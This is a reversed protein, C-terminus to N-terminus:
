YDKPKGCNPNSCVQKFFGKFKSGCYLCVDSNMRHIQQQEEIKANIINDLSQNLEFIVFSEYSHFTFFTRNKVTECIHFGIYNEYYFLCEISKNCEYTNDYNVTTRDEKNSNYIIKSTQAIEDYVQVKLDQQSELEDRIKDFALVKEYKEVFYKKLEGLKDFNNKLIAVYIACTYLPLEFLEDLCKDIYIAIEQDISTNLKQIIAIIDCLGLFWEQFYSLTSEYNDYLMINHHCKCKFLGLWGRYDDPFDNTIQLFVEEAKDERKLTWFSEANKLLREKEANGTVVEVTGSVILKKAEELTYKTGCHECQFFGDKKILQNSGCLECKIAQM